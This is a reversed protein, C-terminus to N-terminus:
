QLLLLSPIVNRDCHSARTSLLQRRGPGASMCAHRTESSHLCVRLQLQWGVDAKTRGPGASACASQGPAGLSCGVEATRGSVDYAGLRGADGQPAAARAAVRFQPACSAAAYPASGPTAYSGSTASMPTAFSHTSPTKAASMCPMLLPASLQSYNPVPAAAPPSRATLNPQALM